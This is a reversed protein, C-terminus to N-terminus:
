NGGESQSKEIQSVTASGIIESARHASLFRRSKSLPDNSNIFQSTRRTLLSLDSTSRKFALFDIKKFANETNAFDISDRLGIEEEPTNISQPIFPEERIPTQNEPSLKGNETSKNEHGAEAAQNAEQLKKEKERKKQKRHERALIHLEDDDIKQRSHKKKSKKQKQKL